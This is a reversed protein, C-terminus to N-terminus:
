SSSPRDLLRHGYAPTEGHRVRELLAKARESAASCRSIADSMAVEFVRTLM